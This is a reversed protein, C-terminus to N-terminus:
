KRSCSNDRYELIKVYQTANSRAQKDIEIIEEMSSPSEENSKSLVHEVISYISDFSIRGGLFAEVAIENSANLSISYKLIRENLYDITNFITFLDHNIEYFKDFKDLFKINDHLIGVTDHTAIDSDYNFAHSIPYIMDPTYSHFQKQEDKTEIFAHVTATPEIKAEIQNYPIDFLIMAEIIELVKNMMTASDISIKKGMQWRPHNLADNITINKLNARKWFPGGSATIFYKKINEKKYKKILENLSFHESDVPIIKANTKNSLEMIFKGGCIITEKNALLLDTGNRIIIDSYKLGAFGGIGNFVMDPNTTDLFEQFSEPSFENSNYIEYPIQKHFKDYSTYASIGIIDLNSDKEAFKLAKKGVSGTAGLIVVRKM